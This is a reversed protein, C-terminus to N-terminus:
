LILTLIFTTAFLWSYAAFRFDADFNNETAAREPPRAPRRGIKAM